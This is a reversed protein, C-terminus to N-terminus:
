EHQNHLLRALSRIGPCYSLSLYMCTKLNFPSNEAARTFQNQSIRFNGSWFHAHGHMFYLHHLHRRLKSRDIYNGFQDVSGLTSIANELTDAWYNRVQLTATVSLHHQRYLMAITDLRDVKHGHALRLYFDWDEGYKLKENYGGIVHWASKKVVLTSPYVAFTCLLEPYTLHTIQFNSQAAFTPERPIPPSEGPQPRWHQGLCFVADVTPNRQLHDTQIKLKAPLWVDDADLIAIYDQTAADCGANRAASVGRNPQNIVRISHHLKELISYDRDTSGDNIVIVEDAPTQQRLVSDIAEDILAGANYAPIIVSIGM